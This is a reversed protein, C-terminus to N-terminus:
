LSKTWRKHVYLCLGTLIMYLWAVVGAHAFAGYYFFGGFWLWGNPKILAIKVWATILIILLILNGLHSQSLTETGDEVPIWGLIGLMALGALKLIFIPNKYPHRKYYEAKKVKLEAPSTSTPDEEKQTNM